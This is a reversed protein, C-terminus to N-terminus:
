HVKVVQGAEQAAEVFKEIDLHFIFVKMYVRTRVFICFWCVYLRLYLLIM